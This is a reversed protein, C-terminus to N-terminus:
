LADLAARLDAELDEYAEIGVSVRVLNPPTSTLPGEVSARHEILSETSGLSTARRFVRLACVFRLAAAQGGHIQVSIMSGYMGPRALTKALTAHGPHSPLGPFHVREVAPHEALFRALRLANDCHVRMRCALTKLGRMLLWADFPALVAGATTQVHRIPKELEVVSGGAATSPKVRRGSVVGALLDSHGGMYKTGSSLSLDVGLALPQILYPTLWTIDAVSIVDKGHQAAAHHALELVAPIDTM